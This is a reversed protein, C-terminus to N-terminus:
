DCIRLIQLALRPAIRRPTCLDFRRSQPLSDTFLGSLGKLRESESMDCAIKNKGLPSNNANYIWHTIYRHGQICCVLRAIDHLYIVYMSRRVCQIYLALLTVVLYVYFRRHYSHIQTNIPRELNHKSKSGPIRPKLGFIRHVSMTCWDGGDAWWFRQM